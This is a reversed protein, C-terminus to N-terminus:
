QSTISIVERQSLACNDHQQVMDILPRYREAQFATDNEAGRATVGAIFKQEPFEARFRWLVEGYLEPTLDFIYGTDANLVFAIEVHYRAAAEQMWRICRAFGIWDPQKDKFPLLTAVCLRPVATHSVLAEESTWAWRTGSWPTNPQLDAPNSILGEPTAITSRSADSVGQPNAIRGRTFLLNPTPLVFATAEPDVVEALPAALGPQLRATGPAPM